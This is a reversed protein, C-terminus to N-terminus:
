IVRLNCFEPTHGKQWVAHMYEISDTKSPQDPIFGIRSHHVFSYKPLNNKWFEFRDKSGFYNLRLLMVVFGGENVDELAKQIIEKAINFPPNTIIMDYKRLKVKLYNAKHKALSDERIDCTVIPTDTFKKLAEPYSMPYKSDGGSCPDLILKSNNFVEPEYKILEHLFLEIDKVPTIYYDSAHEQRAESRNTSSM